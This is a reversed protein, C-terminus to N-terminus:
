KGIGVGQSPRILVIQKFSVFLMFRKVLTCVFQEFGIDGAIDVEETEEHRKYQLALSLLDDGNATTM